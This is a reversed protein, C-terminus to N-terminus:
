CHFDTGRDIPMQTNDKKLHEVCLLGHTSVMNKCGIYNCTLMSKSLDSLTNFEEQSMLPVPPESFKKLMRRMADAVIPPCDSLDQCILDLLAKM